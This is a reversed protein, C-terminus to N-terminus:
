LNTRSELLEGNHLDLKEKERLEERAERVSFLFAFGKSVTSATKSSM